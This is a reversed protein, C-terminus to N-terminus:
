YPMDFCEAFFNSLTSGLHLKDAKNGISHDQDPYIRSEFLINKSILQKMLMISQQFHVNDDATGHILLFRKKDITSINEILSALKYRQNLDLSKLVSAIKNLDRESLISKSSKNNLQKDIVVDDSNTTQAGNSLLLTKNLPLWNTNGASSTLADLSSTTTQSSSSSSPMMIGNNFLSLKTLWDMSAYQQELMSINLHDGAQHNDFQENLYPSSMYRETYATDYYIWNTVPAVSVACQFVGASSLMPVQQQKTESSLQMSFQDRNNNRFKILNNYNFRNSQALAMAAAYGGYSWGWIAVKNPDIFSYNRTLYAAVDIQDQIEVTGFKQYLEYLRKTGQYGSGRGDIMVYVTRRSSAMYHGFNVAFRYDVKQSGPGGYVDVIMPYQQGGSNLRDSFKAFTEPTFYQHVQQQIGGHNNNMAPAPHVNNNNNNNGSGKLSRPLRLRRGTAQQQQQQQQQASGSPQIISSGGYSGLNIPTTMSSTSAKYTTTYGLQPPLLMLVNATYNTNPIPVKLRMTLPMAKYNNIKDRLLQNDEITWLLTPDDSDDITQDDDDHQPSLQRNNNEGNLTQQQQQQQKQYFYNQNNTLQSTSKLQGNTQISSSKTQESSTLRLEYRPIGPGHCEFVYHDTSPSLKISNYLCEQPYFDCTLCQSNNNNNADKNDYNVFYAQRQGPENEVTATYYVIQKIKDVGDISILERKGSTLFTYNNPYNISIKALHKFKGVEPGEDKLLLAFYFNEDLPIIDDSMDLWGLPSKQNLNKECSWNSDRSCILYYSENQIRNLWSLLLKDNTLWKIRFIYHQKNELEKPLKVEISNKQESDDSLQDIIYVKVFPNPRGAKPYKIRQTKPIIQNYSGYISFSVFDVSSDNFSMYALTSGIPSVQYAPTDGLIEEEYLWDPIGNFIENSKGTTTLRNPLSAKISQSKRQAINNLLYLDNNQILILSDNNEDYDDENDNQQSSFWEVHQFRNFENGQDQENLYETASDLHEFTSQLSSKTMIADDNNNNSSSSTTRLISILDLKIDYVFFKATFSHRFQKIKNTWVLLYRKSPSLKFGQFEISALLSSNSILTTINPQFKTRTTNNNVYKSNTLQVLKLNKLDEFLLEDVLKTTEKRLNKESSQIQKRAQTLWQFNFDNPYLEGLLSDELTVAERPTYPKTLFSVIEPNVIVISAVIM